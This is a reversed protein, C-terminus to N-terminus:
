TVWTMCPFYNKKELCKPKLYCRSITSIMNGVLLQFLYPYPSIESILNLNRKSINVLVQDISSSDLKEFSYESLNNEALVRLSKELDQSEIMKHIIEKNLLYKELDRIRGCAYGYEELTNTSENINKLM